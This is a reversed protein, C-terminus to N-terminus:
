VNRVVKSFTKVKKYLEYKFVNPDFLFIMKMNNVSNRHNRKPGSLDGLQSAARVVCSMRKGAEDLAVDCVCKNARRALM